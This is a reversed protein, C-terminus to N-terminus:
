IVKRVFIMPYVDKKLAEYSEPNLSRRKKRHPFVKPDIKLHYYSVKAYIGVINDHKWAFIDLNKSCFCKLNEKVKIPLSNGVQLIKYPDQSDVLAIQSNSEM